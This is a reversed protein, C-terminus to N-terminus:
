GKPNGRKATMKKKNLLIFTSYKLTIINKNLIKYKLPNLVVLNYKHM